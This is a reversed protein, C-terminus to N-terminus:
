ARGPRRGGRAPELSRSHETHVLASCPGSLCSLSAAHPVAPRSSLLAPMAPRLLWGTQQTSEETQSGAVVSLQGGLEADQPSLCCVADGPLHAPVPPCSGRPEEEKEPRPAAPAHTSSGCDPILTRPNAAAVSLEPPLPRLSQCGGAGGRSSRAKEGHAPEEGGM